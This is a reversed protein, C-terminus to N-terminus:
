WTDMWAVVVGHARMREAERCLTTATSVPLPEAPFPNSSIRGTLGLDPITFSCLLVEPGRRVVDAPRANGPLKVARGWKRNARSM